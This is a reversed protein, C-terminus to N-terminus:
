KIGSGTSPPKMQSVPQNSGQQPQYGENTSKQGSQPQYGYETAPQYGSIEIEKDKGM